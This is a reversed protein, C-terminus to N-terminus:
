SAHEAGQAFGRRYAEELLEEAERVLMYEGDAARVMGKDSWSFKKAEVEIV